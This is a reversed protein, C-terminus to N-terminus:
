LLVELKKFVKEPTDMGFGSGIKPLGMEELAEYVENCFYAGSKAWKNYTPIPKKFARFLLTRWAIYLAGGFDYPRGDYKRVVIDWLTDEALQSLPLDIRHIITMHKLANNFFRPHTGMLNSEFMLGKASTTFVFAFHSCPEGTIKRILWSYPTRSKTWVLLM